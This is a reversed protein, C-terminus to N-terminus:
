DRARVMRRGTENEDSLHQPIPVQWGLTGRPLGLPIDFPPKSPRLFTQMPVEPKLGLSIEAPLDSSISLVCVCHKTLAARLHYLTLLSGRKPFTGSSESIKVGM